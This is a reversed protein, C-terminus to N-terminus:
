MSSIQINPNAGFLQKKKPLPVNRHLPPPKKGTTTTTTAAAATSQTKCSLGQLNCHLAANIMLTEQQPQTRLVITKQLQANYIM